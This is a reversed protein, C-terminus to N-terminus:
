LYVTKTEQYQVPVLKFILGLAPSIRPTEEFAFSMLGNCALVLENVLVRVHDIIVGGQVQAGNLLRQEAFCAWSPPRETTSYNNENCDRKEDWV